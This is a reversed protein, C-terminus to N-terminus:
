PFPSEGKVLTNALHGFDIAVKGLEVAIRQCLIVAAIGASVLTIDFDRMSVEDMIRPVDTIGNVPAIFDVIHVGHQRLIESLPEALNGVVLVRHGALISTLMKTENLQYNILSSTLWLHQFDIGHAPFVSFALLQFNRTRESPIGVITAQKISLALQDRAQLDPVIVGAYELFPGETKVQEFSLVCGQALTLLEGDGIRVLSLPTRTELAHIIRNGTEEVSHIPAWHPRLQEIGAAIIHEVTAPLVISPPLMSTVVGESGERWPNLGEGEYKGHQFGERHGKDYGQNFGVNFGQDYLPFLQFRPRRLKRKMLTLIRRKVRPKLRRM